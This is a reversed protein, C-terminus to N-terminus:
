VYLAQTYLETMSEDLKRSITHDLQNSLSERRAQLLIQPIKRM